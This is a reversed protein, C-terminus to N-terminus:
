TDRLHPTTNRQKRISNKRGKRFLNVLCMFPKLMVLFTDSVNQRAPGSPPPRVASECVM